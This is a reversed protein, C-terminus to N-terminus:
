KSALLDFNIGINTIPGVIKALLLKMSIQFLWQYAAQFGNKM